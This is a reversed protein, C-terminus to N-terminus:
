KEKKREKIAAREALQRRQGAEIAEVLFDPKPRQGFEEAPSVYSRDGNMLSEFPSADDPLAPVGRGVPSPKHAEKLRRSQEEMRATQEARETLFQRVVEAPVARMGVDDLQVAEGLRDAVLEIPEDVELAILALPVLETGEALWQRGLRRAIETGDNPEIDMGDEKMATEREDTLLVADQDKRMM